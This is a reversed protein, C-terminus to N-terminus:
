LRPQLTGTMRGVAVQDGARMIVVGREIQVRGYGLSNTRFSAVQRGNHLVIYTTNPVARGAEAELWRRTVGQDNEARYTVKAETVGSRMRAELRVRTITSGSAAASTEVFSLSGIFVALVALITKLM